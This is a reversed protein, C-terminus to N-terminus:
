SRDRHHKSRKYKKKHKKEDDSSHYRDPSEYKKSKSKSSKKSSKKKSRYRESSSDSSSSRKRHKEHSRRENYKRNNTKDDESDSSYHRTDKKDYKSAKERSRRRDRSRDREYSKNRRNDDKSGYPRYEKRSRSATNEDRSQREDRGNENKSRHSSSDVRVRSTSPSLSRSRREKKIVKVGASSTKNEDNKFDEYKEANLIKSYNAYEQKSVPQVMFENMLVKLGGIALKVILRGGGDDFGEIKGYLNKHKGALIKIFANRKIELTENIAPAVLLKQKKIVKDAGLGLGKPRVVPVDFKDVDKKEEEKWGMGRLLAKGYDAIPIKEYDDITSEVAGNLPLEDPHLPLELVKIEPKLSTNKLDEIIERAAKQELTENEDMKSAEGNSKDTNIKKAKRSEMLKSIPRTKQDNTMPIILEKKDEDKSNKGIIKIASGEISDIMEIKTTSKLSETNNKLLNPKEITKKFGFSLKASKNDM